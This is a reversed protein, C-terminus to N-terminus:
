SGRPRSVSEWSHDAGGPLAPIIEEIGHILHDVVASPDRDGGPYERQAVKTLGLDFAEIRIGTEGIEVGLVNGLQRALELLMRPRGGDPEETGAEVVLGRHILRAVVNTVTGPSLGTADVLDRRTLPAGFYLHRLVSSENERRVDLVTAGGGKSRQRELM